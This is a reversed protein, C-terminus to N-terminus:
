KKVATWEGSADNNQWEGTMHREDVLRGTWNEDGALSISEGSVIYTGKYEYEYFNLQTWSGESPDGTFEITGDDFINGNATTLTYEWHGVINFAPSETNTESKSSCGVVSLLVILVMLFSVKKM